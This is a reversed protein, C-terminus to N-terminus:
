PAQPFPLDTVVAAHGNVTVEDGIAAATRHLYALAIPGLRPSTVVSRVVGAEAREPHVVTAGVSAEGSLRLGRLARSAQGKAHVRFVPEQGVYCGKDYDLWAALPTEFPFNDEDVDIGYRPWGAEVRLVEEVEATALPTPAAGDVLPASWVSAADDWLTYAPGTRPEFEVEDMVAYRQLHTAVKETLVPECWVDLHEAARVVAIVALVRGKPSLLAGWAQGGDALAEVNVTALGHLFRVRDAGTLRLRGWASRDIAISM